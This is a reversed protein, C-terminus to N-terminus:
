DWDDWDQLQERLRRAEQLDELKQMSARLRGKRRVDQKEMSHIFGDLEFEQDAFLDSEEFDESTKRKARSM